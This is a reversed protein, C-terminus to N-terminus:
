KKTKHLDKEKKSTATTSFNGNEQIWAMELYVEDDLGTHM